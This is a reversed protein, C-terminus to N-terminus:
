KGVEELLALVDHLYLMKNNPTDQSFSPDAEYVEMGEVKARLETLKTDLSQGEGCLCSSMGWGGKAVQIVQRYPLAM